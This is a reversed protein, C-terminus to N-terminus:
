FSYSLSLQFSSRTYDPNQTLSGATGTRINDGTVRLLQYAIQADWGKGIKATLGVTGGYAPQWSNNTGGLLTPFAANTKEYKQHIFGATPGVFLSYDKSFSFSYRYDFLVPIQTTEFKSGGVSSTGDWKAWGSELSIEQQNSSGFTYGAAIVPGAEWDNQRTLSDFKGYTYSAGARIFPEAASAAVGTLATAIFLHNFLKTIPSM